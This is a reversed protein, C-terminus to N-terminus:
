RLGRTGGVRGRLRGPLVSEVRCPPKGQFGSLIKTGLRTQLARSGGSSWGVESALELGHTM